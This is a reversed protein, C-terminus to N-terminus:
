LAGDIRAGTMESMLVYFFFFVKQLQTTTASACRRMLNVWGSFPCIREKARQRKIDNSGLLGTKQNNRRILPEVTRETHTRWWFIFLEWSFIQSKSVQLHKTVKRICRCCASATAAYHAWTGTFADWVRKKKLKSVVWGTQRRFNHCGHRTVRLKAVRVAGRWLYSSINRGYIIPDSRPSLCGMFFRQQSVYAWKSQCFLSM